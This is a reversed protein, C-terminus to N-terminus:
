RPNDLFDIFSVTHSGSESAGRLPPKLSVTVLVLVIIVSVILFLGIRWFVPSVGVELLPLPSSTGALLAAASCVM